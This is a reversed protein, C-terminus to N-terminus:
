HLLVPPIRWQLPQPQLDASCGHPSRSMTQHSSTGTRPSLAPADRPERSGRLSASFIQWTVSSTGIGKLLAHSRSPWSCLSSQLLYLLMIYCVQHLLATLLEFSWIRVKYYNTRSHSFRGVSDVPTKEEKKERMKWM